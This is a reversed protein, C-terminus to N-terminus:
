ERYVPNGAATLQAVDTEAAEVAAKAESHTKADRFASAHTVLAKEVDKRAQLLKGRNPDGEPLLKITQCQGFQLVDLAQSLDQAQQLAVDGWTASALTFNLDAVELGKIDWRYGSYKFATRCAAPDDKPTSACAAISTVVLLVMVTTNNM